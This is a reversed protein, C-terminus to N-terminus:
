TMILDAEGGRLLFARSTQWNRNTKPPKMGETVFLHPHGSLM